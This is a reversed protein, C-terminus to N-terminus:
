FLAFCFVHVRLLHLHGVAAPGHSPDQPRVEKGEGRWFFADM